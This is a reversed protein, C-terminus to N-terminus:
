GDGQEIEQLRIAHAMQGGVPRDEARKGVEDADFRVDRDTVFDATPAFDANGVAVIQLRSPDLYKKALAQADAATIANIREPYKDWYDAPLNFRYRTIANNLLAQPSELTLAFAAGPRFSTSM